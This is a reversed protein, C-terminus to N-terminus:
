KIGVKTREYLTKDAAIEQLAITVPKDSGCEVYPRAGELLQRARKAAAVVLTYRSDVKERLLDLPPQNMM